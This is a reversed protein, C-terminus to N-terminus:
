IDVMPDRLIQEDRDCIGVKVPFRNDPRDFLRQRHFSFQDCLKPICGIQGICGQPRSASVFEIDLCSGHAHLCRLVFIDPTQAFEDGVPELSKGSIEFM